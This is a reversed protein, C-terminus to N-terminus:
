RILLLTGNLTQMTKGTFQYECAWVFTGPPQQQKKYTGDWKKNLNNSYFIKEGYRNWIVLNYHKLTGYVIPGFNDNVGDMNPTFATPIYIEQLCNAKTVEFRKQNYCKNKDFVRLWYNGPSFIKTSNITDGNSWNYKLYNTTLISVFLTDGECITYSPSIGTIIPIPLINIHGSASVPCNYSSFASLSFTTPQSPWAKFLKNQESLVGSAEPSWTYNYLVSDSYLQISATDGFCIDLHAPLVKLASSDYRILVSDKSVINCYNKAQVVHWGPSNITFAASLTSGNDWSYAKYGKPATITVKQGPCLITDQISLKVPLTDAETATVEKSSLITNCDKFKASFIYKGSSKAKIRYVSDDIIHQVLEINTSSTYMVIEKKCDNNKRIIINFEEGTCISDPAIIQMSDCRSVVQCISKYNLFVTKETIPLPSQALAIKLTTDWIFPASFVDVPTVTTIQINEPGCQPVEIQAGQNYVEIFQKSNSLNNFLLFYNKNPLLTALAKLTNGGISKAFKQEKELKSEFISSVIFSDQNATQPSVIFTVKGTNSIQFSKSCISQPLTTTIFSKQPQLQHDFTLFFHRSTGRQFKHDESYAMFLNNQLAKTYNSVYSIGCSGNVSSVPESLAPKFYKGNQLKPNASSFQTVFVKQFYNNPGSNYRDDGPSSYSILQYNNDMIKEFGISTFSSSEQIFLYSWNLVGSDNFSCTIIGDTLFINPAITCNTQCNVTASILIETSSLGLTINMLQLQLVNNDVVYKSAWVLQGSITFQMLAIAQQTTTSVIGSIYISTKNVAITYFLTGEPKQWKKCWEVLGTYKNLSALWYDTSGDDVDKGLVYIREDDDTQSILQLSKDSSGDMELVGRTITDTLNCKSTQTYTILSSLLFCIILVIKCTFKELTDMFEKLSSMQM